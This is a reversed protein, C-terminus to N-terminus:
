LVKLESLKENLEQRKGILRRKQDNSLKENYENQYKLNENYLKESEVFADHSKREDVHQMLVEMKKEILTEKMMGKLIREVLRRFLM